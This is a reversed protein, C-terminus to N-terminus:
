FSTFDLHAPGVGHSSALKNLWRGYKQQMHLMLFSTPESSIRKSVAVYAALGRRSCSSVDWDFCQLVELEMRNLHAIQLEPLVRQFDDCLIGQERSPHM